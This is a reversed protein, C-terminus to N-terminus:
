RNCLSLLLFFSLGDDDDNNITRICIEDIHTKFITSMKRYVNTNRELKPRMTYCFIPEFWCYLLVVIQCFFIVFMCCLLLFFYCTDIQRQWFIAIQRQCNCVFFAFVGSCCMFHWQCFQINSFNTSNSKVVDIIININMDRSSCVCIVSGISLSIDRFPSLAFSVTCTSLFHTYYFALTFLFQWFGSCFDLLTSHVLTPSTPSSFICGSTRKKNTKQSFFTSM